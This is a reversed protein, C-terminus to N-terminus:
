MRVVLLFPDIRPPHSPPGGTEEFAAETTLMQSDLILCHGVIQPKFLGKTYKEVPQCSQLTRAHNLVKVQLLIELNIGNLEAVPKPLLDLLHNWGIPTTRIPMNM